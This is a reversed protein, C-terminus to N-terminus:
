EKKRSVDAQEFTPMERFLSVASDIIGMALAAGTGEGLRMELNLIPEVNLHQLVNRYGMEASDHAFFMYERCPPVLAMAIAAAATCIFGDVVVPLWSAAAGLYLGTLAAIEFGGFYQLIDLPKMSSINWRNLASRIIAAKNLRGSEDLGAGKGTVLEPDIGFLASYIASAAATNGIGMDGGAILQIGEAKAQDAFQIGAQLAHSMEDSTMASEKVFNRTGNNIHVTILNNHSIRAAIGMDVIKLDIKEKDALISIAAKGTLFGRVMQTTVDQPYASVGEAVIGHDAAFVLLRKNKVEPMGTRTIACIRSGIEELRGLSGQPKILNDWREQASKFFQVVVPEIGPIKM